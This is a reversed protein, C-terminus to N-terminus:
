AGYVAVPKGLVGEDPVVGIGPLSPPVAHGDRNRAGQGPAPDVVLHRHSLWSALRNSEPTSAALHIAATDALVSGGVDEIHMQWGVRVGFDRVQRARTIGGLRNPKVKVGHCARLRWADLHDGFDLMCEDLMLPQPVRAAVHACADLTQCPQEIWDRSAVANLVQIAVGPQWARNVDFTVSHGPALAESIADIRAIDIDPRDGGIKASHVKYGEKAARRIGAIMQKPSGTAISSNVAVKAPEAGGLCRWLPMDARRAFVDWCAMDIASKAHAHGPLTTDMVMNLHDLACADLGILSGCLTELGARVGPGHAPLYTHGWPCAEGWGALGDDTDIRIVTSDLRDVRLRGGSLSYPEALPLDLRWVTIRSIRAGSM